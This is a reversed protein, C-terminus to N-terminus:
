EKRHNIVKNTEQLLQLAMIPKGLHGDMGAIRAKEIDEAFVNATMAIIPITKAQMHACERIAVAAQYGDMVPMQIDMYIVDYRGPDSREFRWACEKGDATMDVAFGLRELMTRAIKQNIQNDEAVLCRLGAFPTDGLIDPGLNKAPTTNAKPFFLEVTFISGEGEESDCHITGGMATVYSHCISLGLGTGEVRCIRQDDARSFPEFVRDVYEKSIGIGNDEVVFRIDVIDDRLSPIESVVFRVAGYKPTFKVANSLLNGMIQALKLPDGCLATNKINEFDTIFTQSKSTCIPRIIDAQRKMEAVLDFPVSEIVTQGSEIRSMDLVDNILRLLHDSSESITEIYERLKPQINKCELAFATMNVIANLPTRIDHSVSSLFRSKAENAREAMLLANRTAEEREHVSTVDEALAVFLNGESDAPYIQMSFYNPPIVWDNYVYGSRFESKGDWERLRMNIQAIANTETKSSNQMEYGDDTKQLIFYEDGIVAPANESIFSPRAHNINFLGFATKTCKTLLELVQERISLAEKFRTQRERYAFLFALMSIAIFFCILFASALTLKGSFENMTENVATEPAIYFLRLSAGRVHIPTSVLYETEEGMIMFAAADETKLLDAVTASADILPLTEKSYLLAMVNYVANDNANTLRSIVVGDKDTLYMQGKGDFSTIHMSDLFLEMSQVVSVAVIKSNHFTQETEVPVTYIINPAVITIDGHQERARNVTKLATDNAIATGEASYSFGNETYLLLNSVQWLDRKRQLMDQLAADDVWVNKDMVNDAINEAIQWDNETKEEVYLKLQYNLEILHQASETSVNQQFSSLVNRFLLAVTIIVTILVAGCVLIFRDRKKNRLVPAKSLKQIKDSPQQATETDEAACGALAKLRLLQRHVEAYEAEINTYDEARLSEVLKCIASYYATVGLNGALGKLAHASTFAQKYDKDAMAQQLLGINREAIFDRFCSAYLEVNGMFRDMIGSEDAGYEIIKQLLEANTM